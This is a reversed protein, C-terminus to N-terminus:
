KQLQQILLVMDAITIVGDNNLDAAKQNCSSTNTLANSIATVDNVDVVDDNNADKMMLGGIRAAAFNTLNFYGGDTYLKLAPSDEFDDFKHLDFTILDNTNAKVVFKIITMDSEAIHYSKTGNYTDPYCNVGYWSGLKFEGEGGTNSFVCCITVVNDNVEKVKVNYSKSGMTMPTSVVKEKTNEVYIEELKLAIPPNDVVEFTQGNILINDSADLLWLYYTGDSEPTYTITIEKKGNPTVCVNEVYYRDTETNLTSSQSIYVSCKNNYELSTSNTYNFTITGSINKKMSSASMTASLPSGSYISLTTATAEVQYPYLANTLLPTWTVGDYSQVLSLGYVGEPFSYSFTFDRTTGYGGGNLAIQQPESIITYDTGDYYALAVKRDDDIDQFNVIKGNYTGEFTDDLGSRNDKTLTIIPAQNWFISYGKAEDIIDDSITGNSAIGVIISNDDGYGSDNSNGGAGQNSPNLITVDFYGNSSGGWGWNIHYYGKSDRGDCIFAHGVGTYSSGSMYLPRSAELEKDIIAMWQPLTYNERKMLRAHNDLNFYEVLANYCSNDNASSSSGYKMNVAVGCHHMLKAVATGEATNYEDNYNLKMNAWDYAYPEVGAVYFSSGGKTYNYGPINKTLSQGPTHYYYILQAMATAVCGTAARDKSNYLPCLDNYPSTQNWATKVLPKIPTIPAAKRRDTLFKVNDVIYKEGAKLAGLTAEYQALYNLLADPANDADFTGNTTYGVVEPMLDDGSVITYGQQQPYNFIYYSKETTAANTRRPAKAPTLNTVNINNERAVREAIEKAQQRTRPAAMSSIAVLLFLVVSTWRSKM